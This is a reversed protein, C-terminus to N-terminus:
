SRRGPTWWPLTWDWQMPEHQDGSAGRRVWNKGSTDTWKISAWMKATPRLTANGGPHDAGMLAVFLPDAHELGDLNFTFHGDEGPGVVPLVKDSTPAPDLDEHNEVILSLFIVDVLARPGKNRVIVQLQLPTTELRVAWVVVLRARVRDATDRERKREWRDTTAVWLAVAAATFSSAASLANANLNWNATHVLAAIGLGAGILGAILAATSLRLV